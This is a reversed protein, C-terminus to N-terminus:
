LEVIGESKLEKILFTISGSAAVSFYGGRMKDLGLILASLVARAEGENELRINIPIFTPATAEIGVRM